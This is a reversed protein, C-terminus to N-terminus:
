MSSVDHRCPRALAQSKLRGHGVQHRDERDSSRPPGLDGFGHQPRRGALHDDTIAELAVQPDLTTLKAPPVGKELHASGLSDIKTVREEFGIDLCLDTLLTYADRMRREAISFAKDWPEYALYRRYTLLAMKATTGAGAMPDLVLDGPMSYSLILDRALREPMLAGHGFAYRDTTSKHGGVDVVWCDGRVGHSATVNPPRRTMSGDHERYRLGGGSLRGANHNPRDKLLNVCDPRGKSLALVVSTQRHYRRPSRRYARAVVYIRQYLTFGLDWFRLTQRDITCSESGGVIQDQVHWCVVGGPKTVRWLETAIEQFNFQHGGYDRLSDYPPSTVTLDIRDDPVGSMGTVADCHVVQNIM